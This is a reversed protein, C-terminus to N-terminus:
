KNEQTHTTHAAPKIEYDLDVGEAALRIKLLALFGSAVPLSPARWPTCLNVGQGLDDVRGFAEVHLGCADALALFQGVTATKFHEPSEWRQVSRSSVGFRGALGEQTIGKATRLAHLTQRLQDIRTEIHPPYPPRPKRKNRKPATM